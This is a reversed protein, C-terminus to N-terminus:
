ARRRNLAARVKEEDFVEGQAMQEEAKGIDAGASRDSLVELTEILADYDDAALIVAVPRGNKTVTVREHTGVVDDIVESFHTECLRDVADDHGSEHDASSRVDIAQELLTTSIGRALFRWRPPQVLTDVGGAAIHLSLSADRVEAQDRLAQGM